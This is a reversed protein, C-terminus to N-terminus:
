VQDILRDSERVEILGMGLDNVVAMKMVADDDCFENLFEEIEFSLRLGFEEEGVDVRGIEEEVIDEDFAESM